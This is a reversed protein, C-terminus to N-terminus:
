GGPVEGPAAPRSFALGQRGGLVSDRSGMMVQGSALACEGAAPLASAEYDRLITARLTNLEASLDLM